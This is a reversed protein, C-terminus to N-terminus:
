PTRTGLTSAAGYSAAPMGCACTVRRSFDHRAAALRKRSWGGGSADAEGHREGARVRRGWHHRRAADVPPLRGTGRCCATWRLTRPSRRAPRASGTRAASRYGWASRAIKVVEADSLPPMYSANATRAVDLLADFDDCFRAQAMCHRWLTTNRHGEGVSGRVAVRAAAPPNRLVPLDALDALSARSSRTRAGEDGISPPAVVFGDGLIDIPMSPIPGSTRPGRRDAQVLGPFQRQGLARRVAHRRPSGACRRARARRAHGRRRRRDAVAEAGARLGAARRVAARAQPQGVPRAAPLGQGGAGQRAGPLHRHRGRCLPAAM